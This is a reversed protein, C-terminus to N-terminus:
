SQHLAGGGVRVREQRLGPPLLPEDGREAFTAFSAFVRGVRGRVVRGSRLLGDVRRVGRVEVLLRPTQGPPKQAREQRVRRQAHLVPARRNHGGPVDDRGGGVAAPQVPRPGRAREEPIDEIGDRFFRGDRLEGRRPAFVQPAEHRQRLLRHRARRRRRRGRHRSGRRRPRRPERANTILARDPLSVHARREVLVVPLHQVPRPPDQLFEGVHRRRRRLPARARGRPGAGAGASRLARDRRALAFGRRTRPAEGGAVALGRRTEGRQLARREVQGDHVHVGRGRFGGRRRARRELRQKGREEGTRCPVGVRRFGAGRSQVEEERREHAGLRREGACVRRARVEGRAERAAGRRDPAREQGERRSRGRRQRREPPRARVGGAARQRIQALADGLLFGRFGGGLVRALSPARRVRPAGGRHGGRIRRGQRKRALLQVLARQHLPAADRQRREALALPRPARRRARRALLLRLGEVTPPTVKTALKEAVCARPRSLGNDRGRFRAARRVLPLEVLRFVAGPTTQLQLAVVAEHRVAVFFYRAVVRPVCLSGGGLSGGSTQEPVRHLPPFSM